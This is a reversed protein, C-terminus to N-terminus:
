ITSPVCKAHHLANNCQGRQVHCGFLSLFRVLTHEMKTNISLTYNLRTGVYGAQLDDPLTWIRPVTTLLKLVLYALTLITPIHPLNGLILQIEIREAINITVNKFATGTLLHFLYMNVACGTGWSQCVEDYDSLVCNVWQIEWM